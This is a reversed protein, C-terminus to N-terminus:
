IKRRFIGYAHKMNYHISYWDYHPTIVLSTPILIYKSAHLLTGNIREDCSTIKRDPIPRIYYYLRITITKYYPRTNHYIFRNFNFIVLDKFNFHIYKYFLYIIHNESSIAKSQAYAAKVYSTFLVNDSERVVLQDTDYTITIKM